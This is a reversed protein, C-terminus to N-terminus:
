RVQLLAGGASLLARGAKGASAFWARYVGALGSLGGETAPAALVPIWLLSVLLVAAASFVRGNRKLDPQGHLFGEASFLVHMSFFFACVGPYLRPVWPSYSRLFFAALAAVACYFPFIYPALDIVVNTSDIVVKGGSRSSIHFGHVQRFFIKAALLHSLEHGWVYMREPKRVFFHAALYAAAGATAIWSREGGPLAAKAPFSILLLGDM